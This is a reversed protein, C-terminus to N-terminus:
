GSIKTNMALNKYLVFVLEFWDCHYHDLKANLLFLFACARRSIFLLSDSLKDKNIVNNIFSVTLPLLLIM